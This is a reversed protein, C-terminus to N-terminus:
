VPSLQNQVCSNFTLDHHRTHLETCLHYNSSLLNCCVEQPAVSCLVQAPYISITSWRRQLVWLHRLFSLDRATLSHVVTVVLQSSIVPSIPFYLAPFRYIYIIKNLESFLFISTKLFTKFWTRWHYLCNNMCFWKLKDVLSNVYLKVYFM